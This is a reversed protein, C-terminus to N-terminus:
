RVLPPVVLGPGPAAAHPAVARLRAALWVALAFTAVAVWGNVAYGALRGTAVERTILFGALTNGCASAGQQVASNVSMFGGRYRDEVSNTVMTMSPPFRGSMGVMFVSTCVLALAVPVPPLHTLVLVAVSAGASVWAFVHFKDHRDSLRGFWPMTFFTCAGGALYILPLQAETLGVNAVMAPAMFPIIIGGAFVVAATLLFGRRHVPHALIASMQQWPKNAVPHPPLRPLVRLGVLGILASLGALLFFPAHWGARDALFLGTSVGLVSALPFATMVVGMATGRRAAPVVDGVAATVVSSALGGFAGAAFRAALLWEYGLALACALTALGFGAYLALLAHKRDFRDLVFGGLMGAIAASVSYAAILWSFQGPSVHFIRMLHSGLPMMIVYDLNHTFQVAALTFLLLRENVPAAPSRAASPPPM